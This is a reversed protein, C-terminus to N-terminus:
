SRPASESEPRYRTDITPGYVAELVDYPDPMERGTLKVLRAGDLSAFRCIEGTPIDSEIARADRVYAEDVKMRRALFRAADFYSIDRAGSLQTIGSPRDECLTIIDSTVRNLPLPAIHHDTFAVIRQHQWLSAMWNVFLATEPTLVKTLRVISALTGFERFVKEAEAKIKGIASSPRVPAEAAIHPSQFDFVAATSLLIVHAGEDVLRQALAFTGTVNTQRALPEDTRCREFSTVAACFIAVDVRPLIVQKSDRLDLFLLNDDHRPRRTTATVVDGRKTFAQTLANGILGDGGVVLVRM